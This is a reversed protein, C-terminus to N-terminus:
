KRAICGRQAILTLRPWWWITRGQENALRYTARVNESAHAILERVRARSQRAFQEQAAQKISDLQM